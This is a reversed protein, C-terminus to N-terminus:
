LYELVQSAAAVGSTYAGEVRAGSFVEGALVVPFGVECAVAGVDFTIRPQAYRWRHGIVDVIRSDFHAAAAHRLVGLWQEPPEELHSVSFEPTAHITLAPVASVGKHHNDGIWAIPGSDPSRHGDPLGSPGDLSAMMVLCPDYVVRDLMETVRDPRAAGGAELLGRIQPVPPTLIAAVGVAVLDSGAFAAAKREVAELRDVTVATRVDLADALAEPIRRMGDRGVHRREVGRDPNTWSASRFWERVLGQETWAAVAAAFRPSRASLHQAGHDFRAEGVTRTAMRGGPARGKDLIVTRIGQEALCGAATLGAMGAGIILVQTSHAGM